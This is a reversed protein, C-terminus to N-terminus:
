RSFTTASGLPATPIAASRVPFSSARPRETPTTREPPFTPAARQASSTDLEGALRGRHSRVADARGSRRRGRRVAPTGAGLGHAARRDLRLGRDRRLG